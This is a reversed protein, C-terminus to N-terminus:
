LQTTVHNVDLAVNVLLYKRTTNQCINSSKVNQYLIGYDYHGISYTNEEVHLCNQKRDQILTFMTCLNCQKRQFFSLPPM